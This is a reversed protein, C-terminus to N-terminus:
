RAQPGEGGSARVDDGAELDDAEDESVFAQADPVLESEQRGHSGFRRDVPAWAVALAYLSLVWIGIAVEVVVAVLRGSEVRAVGMAQTLMGQEGARWGIDEGTDEGPEGAPSCLRGGDM